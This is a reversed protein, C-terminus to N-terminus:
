PNSNINIEGIGGNIDILHEGNGVIATGIKNKNLFISGIGKEVDFTYNSLNDILNLNIQGIGADIKNSGTLIIDANFEGIGLDASLNNIRGKSITITGAGGNIKINNMINIENIKLEGVGVDITAKRTNLEEIIVKGVGTKINIENLNNTKPLVVILELNKDNQHFIEKRNDIISIDNNVEQVLFGDNNTLVNFQDGTKLTLKSVSTEITLKNCDEFIFDIKKRNSPM